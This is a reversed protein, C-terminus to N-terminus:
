EHSKKGAKFGLSYLAYLLTTLGHKDAMELLQERDAIAALHIERAEGYNVDKFLTSNELLEVAASHKTQVMFNGITFLIYHHDCFLKNKRKPESCGENCCKAVAETIM